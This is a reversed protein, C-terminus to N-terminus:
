PSLADGMNNEFLNVSSIEIDLWKAIKAKALIGKQGGADATVAGIGLRERLSIAQVREVGSRRRRVRIKGGRQHISIWVAVGM